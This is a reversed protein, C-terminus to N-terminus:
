RAFAVVRVDTVASLDTTDPVEILAGDTATSYDAHYALLKLNTYDYEFVYGLRPLPIVALLTSNDPFGLEVENLSEGGTPYSSDFDVDLIRCYMAGLNETPLAGARNTITLAM